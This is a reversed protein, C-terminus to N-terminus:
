GVRLGLASVQGLNGGPHNSFFTTKTLGRLETLAMAFADGMAMTIITSNTPAPIAPWAESHSTNYVGAAAQEATRPGRCDLWVDCLEALVSQGNATMAVRACQQVQALRMFALLEPTNGSYSMALVLDRGPTLLGLDGHFSEVPHLFM